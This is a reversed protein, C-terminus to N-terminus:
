LDVAYLLLIASPLISTLIIEPPFGSVAIDLPCQAIRVEGAQVIIGFELTQNAIGGRVLGPDDKIKGGLFYSVSFLRDCLSYNRGRMANVEPVFDGQFNKGGSKRGIGVSKMAELM